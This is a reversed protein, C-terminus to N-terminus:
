HGHRVPSGEVLFIVNEAINTSLDGIRELRRAVSLIDIAARTAEVHRPIEDQVWEFVAKQLEDVQEDAAIVDRCLGADSEALATLADGLMRVAAPAMRRLVAPLEVPPAAGLDLVRKAISKAEDGIRELENNVRLVVMVLRLDAAVPQTLALVRLCEAEIDVDMEDIEQDGERVAHAVDPRGELLAQVSRQVRQEVASGMTLISRRLDILGRSLDIPM